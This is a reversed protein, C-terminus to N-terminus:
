RCIKVVSAPGEKGATAKHLQERVHLAAERSLHLELSLQADAYTLIRGCVDAYTRM